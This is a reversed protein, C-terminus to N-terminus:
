TQFIEKLLALEESGIHTEPKKPDPISVIIHQMKQMLEPNKSRKYQEFLRNLETFPSERIKYGSKYFTDGSESTGLTIGKVAM